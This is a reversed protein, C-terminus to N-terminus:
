YNGDHLIFAKAELTQVEDPMSTTVVEELGYNELEKTLLAAAPAYYTVFLNRTGVPYHGEFKTCTYINM